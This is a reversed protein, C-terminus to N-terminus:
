FAFSLMTLFLLGFGAFISMASSTSTTLTVNSSSKAWLIISYTQSSNLTQTDGCTFNQVVMNTMNYDLDGAAAWITPNGTCALSMTVPNSLSNNVIILQDDQTANLQYLYTRSGGNPTSSNYTVNSYYNVPPLYSNLVCETVNSATTNVGDTTNSCVAQDDWFNNISVCTICDTAFSVQFTITAQTAAGTQALIINQTQGSTILIFDGCGFSGFTATEINTGTAYWGVVSGPTCTLLVKFSDYVSNHVSLFADYLGNPDLNYTKVSKGQSFQTDSNIPLQM